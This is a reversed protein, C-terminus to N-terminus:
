ENISEMPRILSEIYEIEEVNLNYKKYLEEDTWHKNFNQFPVFSFNNQAIHMSSLTLSIMFRTFKTRIYNACNIVKQKDSDNYPIIYTETVVERKELIRIKTTINMMGDKANNVGARDPNLYGICVKYNGILDKNKIVKDIEIYGKGASSILTVCDKFPTQSGREYSRLGFPSVKLVNDSLMKEEISM